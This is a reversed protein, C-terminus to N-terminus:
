TTRIRPDIFRYGIDVILNAMVFAAAIILGLATIIPYDRSFFSEIALLGIGPIGFFRETIFAGEVLGALSLGIITFVPILANRLIHRRRVVLEGLGKARATRVYDQSLVELTSARTIRTLGAVGPVGLVLAPMIIRTDFFGGWGHTPLIGLWLGFAMLLFPATIFVPLSMFFLTVSVTTVDIWTGQKLAAFVGLPVGLLIAIISAAIGLQASVWIRKGILESVSQGRHRFSEGLDGQAVNKVYIGYQVFINKDLGRQHQIREVAEPNNFQGQLISIPDGPAYNGLLFTILAVILLLFPTWVLRRIIYAAM